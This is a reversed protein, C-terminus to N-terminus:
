ARKKQTAVSGRKLSYIMLKEHEINMEETKKEVEEIQTELSRNMERESELENQLESIVKNEQEQIRKLLLRNEENLQGILSSDITFCSSDTSAQNQNSGNSHIAIVDDSIDSSSPFRMTSPRMRTKSPTTGNNM